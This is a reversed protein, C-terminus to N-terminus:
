KKYEFSIKGRNGCNCTNDNINLGTIKMAAYNNTKMKVVYVDGIAPSANLSVGTGASYAAEASTATANDYDFGSTTIVMDAGTSLNFGGTFTAGAVDTNTVVTADVHPTTGASVVTDLRLDWAGELSGNVHYFFGNETSTFDVSADTVSVTVNTSNKLGDKDTVTFIWNYSGETMATQNITYDFSGADFTSDLVVTPTNNTVSEIKVNSLDTTSTSNANAIVHFNFDSGTTISTNGTICTDACTALSITPTKDVPTVGDESDDDGCSTMIVSGVLLLGLLLFNSKKM